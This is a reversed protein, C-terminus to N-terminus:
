QASREFDSFDTDERQVVRPAGKATRAKAPERSVWRFWEDRTIPRGDAAFHGVFQVWMGLSVSDVVSKTWPAFELTWPGHPALDLACQGSAELCM